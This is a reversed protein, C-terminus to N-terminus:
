IVKKHDIIIVNNNKIIDKCIKDMAPTDYTQIYSERLTYKETGYQSRIVFRTGYFTSHFFETDIRGTVYKNRIKVRVLKHMISQPNSDMELKDEKSNTLRKM